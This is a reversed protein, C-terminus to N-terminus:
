PETQNLRNISRMTLFDLFKLSASTQSFCWYRLMVGISLIRAARWILFRSKGPLCGSTRSHWVVLFTRYLGVVERRSNQLEDAQELNVLHFVDHHAALSHNIM